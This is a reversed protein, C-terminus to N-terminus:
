DNKGEGLLAWLELAVDFKHSDQFVPEGAEGAPDVLVFFTGHVPDQRKELRHQGGRLGVFTRFETM